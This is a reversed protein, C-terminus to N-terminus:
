NQVLWGVLWGFNITIVQKMRFQPRQQQREEEERQRNAEMQRHEEAKRQWSTSERVIAEQFDLWMPDPISSAASEIYQGLAVARHIPQRDPIPDIGMRQRIDSSTAIERALSKTIETLDASFVFLFCFMLIICFDYTYRFPFSILLLVEGELDAPYRYVQFTIYFHFSLEGDSEESRGRKLSPRRTPTPGKIAGPAASTSAAASTSGAARPMPSGLNPPEDMDMPESFLEEM